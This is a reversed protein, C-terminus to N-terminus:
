ARLTEIPLPTDRGARRALRRDFTAFSDSDALGAALHMMDGWDAGLRYRGIAWVVANRHDVIVTDLGM